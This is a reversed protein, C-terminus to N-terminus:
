MGTNIKTDIYNSKETIGLLNKIWVETDLERDRGRDLEPQNKFERQKLAVNLLSQYILFDVTKM